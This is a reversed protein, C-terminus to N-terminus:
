YFISFIIQVIFILIISTFIGSILVNFLNSIYCINILNKLTLNLQLYNNLYEEELKEDRFSLGFMDKLIREDIKLFNLIENNPQKSMPRTKKM